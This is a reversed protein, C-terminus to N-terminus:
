LLWEFMTTQHCGDIINNNKEAGSQFRQTKKQRHKEIEALLVIIEAGCAMVFTYKAIIM